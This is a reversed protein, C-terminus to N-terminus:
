ELTPSPLESTKVVEGWSRLIGFLGDFRWRGDEYVFQYIPGVRNSTCILVSQGDRWAKFNKNLNRPINVLGGERSAALPHERLYRKTCLARAAELRESDLLDPRNAVTFLESCTRLAGRVPQTTIIEFALGGLLAAVVTASILAIRLRTMEGIV